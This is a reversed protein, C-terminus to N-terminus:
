IGYLYKILKTLSKIDVANYMSKKPENLMRLAKKIKKFKKAYLNILIRM